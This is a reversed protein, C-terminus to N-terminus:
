TIADPPPPAFDKFAEVADLYRQHREEEEQQRQKEAKQIYRLITKTKRSKQSAKITGLAILRQAAAENTSVLKRAEEFKELIDPPLQEGRTRGPGRKPREYYRRQLLQDTKSFNEFAFCEALALALKMHEGPWVEIGDEEPSFMFFLNEYRQAARTLEEMNKCQFHEILIRIERETFLTEVEPIRKYESM